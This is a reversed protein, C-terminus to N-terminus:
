GKDHSLKEFPETQGRFNTKQEPHSGAAVTFAVVEEGGVSSLLELAVVGEFIDGAEGVAAAEGAPELPNKVEAGLKVQLLADQHFDIAGTHGVRELDTNGKEVGIEDRM